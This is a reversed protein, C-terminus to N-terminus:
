PCGARPLAQRRELLHAREVDNRCASIADDYAAGAEATRGCRSLLEARVAAVRHSGPIEIGDLAALGPAPGAAEAVAV